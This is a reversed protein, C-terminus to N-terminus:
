LTKRFVLYQATGNKRHKLVRWELSSLGTVASDTLIAINKVIFVAMQKLPNRPRSLDLSKRSILKQIALFIRRTLDLRIEALWGIAPQGLFVKNIYAPGAARCLWDITGFFHGSFLQSVVELGNKEFIAVTESSTMRRVHGDETEFFLVTRGDKTPLRGNSVLRMTRDLFSGENGCPFIIVAYGGARLMRAIDGISEDIDDVHELVHYSFVLDFQADPFPAVFGDFSEFRYGPWKSQAKEIATKSIDVGCIKANPFARSLLDSWAGVGCGYDLIREPQIQVFSLTEWVQRTRLGGHGWVSYADTDMYDGAYRREYLERTTRNPGELM